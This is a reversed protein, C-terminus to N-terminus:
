KKPLKVFKLGSSKPQESDTYHPNAEDFKLKGNLEIERESILGFCERIDQMTSNTLPNSRGAAPAVDRVVNGLTKHMQRLIRQEKSLVETDM